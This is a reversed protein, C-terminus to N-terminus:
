AWSAVSVDVSSRRFLDALLAVYPDSAVALFFSGITMLTLMLWFPPHVALLVLSLAMLPVGVLFFPRRRGLPTRTRDSIRGVLPQVFAGIFSRENALPGIWEPSLGYSELYLPLATNFLAYVSASGLNGVAYRAALGTPFAHGEEAKPAAPDPITTTM